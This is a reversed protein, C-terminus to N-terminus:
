VSSETGIPTILDLEDGLRSRAMEVDYQNQLNPWFQTSNSFFRSLRLATDASVRRKGHVIANIRPAPVGIRKALEYQSLEYEQLFLEDLISGPHILPLRTTSHNSENM